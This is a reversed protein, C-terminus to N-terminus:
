ALCLYARIRGGAAIRQLANWGEQRPLAPHRPPISLDSCGAWGSNKIRLFPSIQVAWM